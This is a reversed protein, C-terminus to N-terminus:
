KLNRKYALVAAVDDLDTPPIEMTLPILKGRVPEAALRAKLDTDILLDAVGARTRETFYVTVRFAGGAVSGWFVTKKKHTGKMLWGGDAYYRWQLAIGLDALDSTFAEYLAMVPGLAGALVAGTPEVGPDRPISGPDGPQGM